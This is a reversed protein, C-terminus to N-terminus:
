AQPSYQAKLYEVWRQWLTGEEVGFAAQFQGPNRLLYNIPGYGYEKVLFAVMTQSFTYGDNFM